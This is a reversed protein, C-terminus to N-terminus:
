QQDEKWLRHVEQVFAEILDDRHFCDVVRSVQSGYPRPCTNFVAQGLRQVKHDPDELLIPIINNQWEMAFLCWAVNDSDVAFPDFRM